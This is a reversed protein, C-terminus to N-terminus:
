RAAYHVIAAGLLTAAAVQVRSPCDLVRMIRCESAHKVDQALSANLREFARGRADASDYKLQWYGVEGVLSDTALQLAQVELHLQVSESTRAWYAAEWKIASDGQESAVRALSDARLSLRLASDQFRQSTRLARHAASDARQAHATLTDQDARYAPKTIVLSDITAQTQAPLSADHHIRLTLIAVLVLLVALPTTIYKNM